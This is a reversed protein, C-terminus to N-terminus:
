KLAAIASAYVIQTGIYSRYIVSKM